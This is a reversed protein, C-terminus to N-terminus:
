PGAALADWLWFAAVELPDAVPAPDAVPSVIEPPTTITEPAPGAAITALSPPMQGTTQWYAAVDKCAELEGDAWTDAHVPVARRFRECAERGAADVDFALFVRPIGALWEPRLTLGNLGIVYRAGGALCAATDFPGECVILPARAARAVAIAGGNVLTKRYGDDNKLTLYKPTTTSDLARGTGGTITGAPDALPIFLRHRRLYPDDSVYGWGLRAAITDPIGRARVYAAAPSGAYADRYATVRDSLAELIAPDQAPTETDRQPRNSRAVPRERGGLSRGRYTDPHDEIRISFAEPGCVHCGAWGREFDIDLATPNDGRHIPCCARARTGHHSSRYGSLAELEARSAYFITHGSKAAHERM